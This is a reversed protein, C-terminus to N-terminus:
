VAGGTTTFEYWQQMCDRCLWNHGQVVSSTHEYMCLCQVAAYIGVGLLVPVGYVDQAVRLHAACRMCLLTILSTMCLALVTLRYYVVRVM